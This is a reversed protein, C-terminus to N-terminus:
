IDDQNGAFTDMSEPPCTGFETVIRAINKAPTVDFLLRAMDHSAMEPDFENLTQSDAAVRETVNITECLAVFNRGLKSAKAAIDATGHRAYLAGDTFMAEAGSLVTVREGARVAEQLKMGHQSHSFSIEIQRPQIGEAKLKRVFGQAQPEHPDECFIVKLNKGNKHAHVLTARVLSHDGYTLVTDGDRLQEAAQKAIEPQALAIRSKAYIDIDNCLQKKVEFDSLDIDVKSIQLKLWRIANGMGFCMPRCASLHEIQPNLM